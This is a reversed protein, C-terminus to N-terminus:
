VFLRVSYKRERVKGGCFPQSKCYAWREPSGSTSEISACLGNATLSLGACNGGSASATQCYSAWAWLAV